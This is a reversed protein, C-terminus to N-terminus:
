FDYRLGLKMGASQTRTQLRSLIPHSSKRGSAFYPEAQIAWHEDLQYALATSAYLQLDLNDKQVRTNPRIPRTERVQLVDDNIEVKDINVKTQFTVNALVGIKMDWRWRKKASQFGLLLPTQFQHTLINSFVRVDFTRGNQLETQSARAVVIDTDLAANSTFLTINYDNEIEGSNNLREGSRRYRMPPRHERQASSRAYGLGTELYFHQNLPHIYQLGLAFSQEGIVDNELFTRRNRELAQNYQLPAVFATLSAPMKESSQVAVRNFNALASSSNAGLAISTLDTSLPKIEGVREITKNEVNTNKQGSIATSAMAISDVLLPNKQETVEQTYEAVILDEEQVEKEVSDNPSSVFSADKTSKSDAQKVDTKAFEEKAAVAIETETETQTKLQAISTAEDVQLNVSEQEESGPIQHELDHLKEEINQIKTAQQNLQIRQYIAQGAVIFLLLSAAVAARKWYLLFPRVKSESKSTTQLNTWVEDSPVNWEAEEPNADAGDFAQKFFDDIKNYDQEM